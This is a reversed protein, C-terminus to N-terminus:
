EGVWEGVLSGRQQGSGVLYDVGDHKPGHGRCPHEVPVAAVMREAAPRHGYDNDSSYQNTTAHLHRLLEHAHPAPSLQGVKHGVACADGCGRQPRWVKYPPKDLRILRLYGPTLINATFFVKTTLRLGHRRCSRYGYLTSISPRM